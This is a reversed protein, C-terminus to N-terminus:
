EHGLHREWWEKWRVVKEERRAEEAAFVVAHSRVAEELTCGVFRRQAEDVAWGEREVAEVARVFSRALGYDGGGHSKEEEPPQRPVEITRTERTEFSYITITRSDYTLEGRTGYVRGRRECQKETPAIMHFVATKAPRGGDASEDDWAITVVQDDCVDNDAEYVCRGYWPRAAITADATGVTYDEELRRLLHAETAAAAPSSTRVVEEIDPCVINVPWDVDGRALHMDRYIKVASYICDREAPCSVCNTAAGAHPPKRARRFQTLAGTSSITRPHHPTATAPAPAGDPGAEPSSLLWMIFDIDHCSKTLLSGDGAPTHGISFIRGAHPDPAGSPQLARYVSLCDALSLTLPKECLIHLNLPAIAHLIEVHTEDLTCIFVGTVGVATSRPDNRRRQEWELWERWDSYAQGNQPEGTGWIFNRGFEARKFAHPEAIAHITRPPLASSPQPIVSPENSLSVNSSGAIPTRAPSPRFIVSEEAERTYSTDLPIGYPHTPPPQSLSTLPQVPPSSPFISSPESATPSTEGFPAGGYGDGGSQLVSPIKRGAIKQFGRESGSSLTSDTRTTHNSQRWRKVFAPAFYSATFLPDNSSRRSAMEASRPASEHGAVAGTGENSPLGRPQQFAAKRRKFLLLALVILMVIGAVGGVVGGAIKGKTESDLSSGSGAAATTTAYPTQEMGTTATGTGTGTWSGGGGGGNWDDGGFYTTTAPVDTTTTSTLSTTETTLLSTTTTTTSDSTPMETSSLTTSAPAATTPSDSSQTTQSTTPPDSSTPTDTSSPVSTTTPSPVSTTSSEPTSTTSTSDSSTTEVPTETTSPVTTATTAAPTTTSAGTSVDSNTTSTESPTSAESTAAPITTTPNALTTQAAGGIDPVVAAQTPTQDEPTPTQRKGLWQGRDSQAFRTDRFDRNIKDDSGSPRGELSPQNAGVGGHTHALRNRRGLRGFRPHRIVGHHAM